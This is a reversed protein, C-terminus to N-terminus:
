LRYGVSLFVTRGDAPLLGPGPYGGSRRTFYQADAVNNVGAKVTFNASQRYSLTLDWVSYAPILGNQGNATPEVTNNADAFAEGVYSYQTTLSLGKWTYTIGTRLIHEPANEIKNNDYNKEQLAGDVLTIVKFNGYRADTYSYSAFCSIDGWKSDDIFAKIPSFEFM